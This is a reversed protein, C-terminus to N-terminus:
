TERNRATVKVYTNFLLYIFNLHKVESVFLFCRVTTSVAPSCSGVFQYGTSCKIGLQDCRCAVSGDTMLVNM